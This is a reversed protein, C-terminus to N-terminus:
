STNSMIRNYYAIAAEIDDRSIAPWHPDAVYVCAYASQWLLFNSLRQDGGTRIVLDVDPLGATWLRQNITAESVAEAEVQEALLERTVQMIESRGGYNFVLNFIWPGNGDM